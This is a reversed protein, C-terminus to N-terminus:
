NHIRLKQAFRVYYLSINEILLIFQIKALYKLIRKYQHM